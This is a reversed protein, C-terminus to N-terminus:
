AGVESEGCSWLNPQITTIRKQALCIYEASLEIGLYNRGHQLAVMPVTGAGAFPDLILCKGSGRADKCTCTPQWGTTVITPTYGSPLDRDVGGGHRGVGRHTRFDQKGRSANVGERETIRSWPSGCQECCRPSSGALICPEVLKPPMVAFHAEPFPQTNVLWVSRKNRGAPNNWEREGEGLPTLQAQKGWTELSKNRLNSATKLPERIADADYYYQESKALMFLYEHSKSCRDEVSEPMSNSKHWIIDSRLYWGDEQLAIAVRAPIMLLQKSALGTEIRHPTFSQHQISIQASLIRSREERGDRRLGSSMGSGGSGKTSSSYSDGLNLWLVGDPRLIRRVEHFLEVLKAIYHQPTKELGIELSKDPHEDPLYSRLGYYPPSTICCQVINPPLSKLVSLSDGQLIVNELKTVDDNIITVDSAQSRFARTKCANTAYKSPRGRGESQEVPRQCGCACLITTQTM